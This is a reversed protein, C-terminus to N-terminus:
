DQGLSIFLKIIRYLDRQYMRLSVLVRTYTIGIKYILQMLWLILIMKWIIKPVVILIKVMVSIERAVKWIRCGTMVLHRIQLSM